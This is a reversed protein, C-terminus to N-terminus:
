LFISFSCVTASPKVFERSVRGSGRRRVQGLHDGIRSVGSAAKFFVFCYEIDCLCPDKCRVQDECTTCTVALVGTRVKGM